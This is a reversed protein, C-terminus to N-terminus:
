ILYEFYCPNPPFTLDVPWKKDYFNDFQDPSLRVKKM